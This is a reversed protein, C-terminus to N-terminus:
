PYTSPLSASPKAANSRHTEIADVLSKLNVPKTMYATVGADLCIERDGPMASATVAIVPLQKFRPDQRLRRTAELGDLGPMQVDMLVLEPCERQTQQLVEFGDRAVAVRYGRAKLFTCFLEISIENDEALLILPQPRADSAAATSGATSNNSRPSVTATRPPPETNNRITASPPLEHPIHFVFRSGKGPESHISISGGHMEVMRKVLALGLGTGAYQRSLKSDLQVFPQFLRPMDEAAIGIGTDWVTFRTAPHVPHLDVELGVAGKDPTFKVANSLLNVLIQKLRREDADLNALGQAIATTLKIQKQHAVQKVLRISSECVSQIPVKDVQLEMKGAEFKSLDLIDNILSLLHRGSEEISRVSRTQKENLPGHIQEQLVEAMGLVANLPTRLEHSMSALFEDKLRAARALQLNASSLEATREEVRQALLAREDSLAQEARRRETIDRDTGRYGQLEGQADLIPTANRELARYSGDKHRWRLVLDRWGWKDNIFLPLLENMQRRDDEHLFARFDKGLMDDPHHGLINQVAPNCYTHRGELDISWIWEHTTEVFARFREESERLAQSTRIREVIEARLRENAQALEQTRLLLDRPDAPWHPADDDQAPTLDAPNEPVEIPRAQNAGHM